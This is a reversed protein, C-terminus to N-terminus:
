LGSVPPQSDPRQLASAVGVDGARWRGGACWPASRGALKGGGLACEARRQQVADVLDDAGADVEVRGVGAVAFM